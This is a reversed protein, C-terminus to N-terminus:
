VAIVAPCELRAREGANLHVHLRISRLLMRAAQILRFPLEPNRSPKYNKADPEARRDSHRDRIKARASPKNSKEKIDKRGRAAAV